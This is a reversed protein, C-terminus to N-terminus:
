TIDRLVLGGENGWSDIEAQADMYKQEPHKTYYEKWYKERKKACMVCVIHDVICHACVQIGIVRDCDNCRVTKSTMKTPTPTRGITLYSM